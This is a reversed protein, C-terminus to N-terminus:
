APPSFIRAIRADMGGAAVERAGAATLAHVTLVTGEVDLTVTGPTLTISNALTTVALDGRLPTPVRVVTPSIPLRPDLVVRIVDINAVVIARLLWPVYAVFRPAVRVAESLGEIDRNARAVLASAVVGLGVILPTPHPSLVLWLALCV